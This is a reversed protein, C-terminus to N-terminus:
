GTARLWADRAKDLAKSPLMLLASADGDVVHLLCNGEGPARGIATFRRDDAQPGPHFSATQAAKAFATLREVLGADGGSETPTASQLRVWGIANSKAADLFGDFPSAPTKEGDDTSKYLDIKWASALSTATVGASFAPAGDSLQEATVTLVGPRSLASVLLDRLLGLVDAGPRTLEQGILSDEVDSGARVGTVSVLRRNGATLRVRGDARRFELSRPLLTEDIERLIAPLPSNGKMALERPGAQARGASALKGASEALRREDSM